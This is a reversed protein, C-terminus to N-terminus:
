RAGVVSRLSAPVASASGFFRPKVPNLGNKELTFSRARALLYRVLATAGRPNPAGALITVTYEAYKYVPALSVTPLQATSAEVKYFFGADLQGSQLRGVLATEPYVPFSELARGLAPEHLKAAASKVAEATLVGKPDLKPDTRGVLVGPETLVQYWPRDHALQAGFRSHPNYALMLPTAAFTSYWSVWAGGGSGELLRDAAAAASVFVDGRRVRGKIENALESSGGGYGTYGYGTAREFAPGFDSEMYRVLSGAFLVSVGGQATSAARGAPGASADGGGVLVSAALACAVACAAAASACAATM